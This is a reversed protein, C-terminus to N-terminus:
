VPMKLGFEPDLDEGGWAKYSEDFGNVSELMSKPMASLSSFFYKGPVQDGDRHKTAGRSNLYRTLADNPLEPHPDRRGIVVSGSELVRDVMVQLCNPWPLTDADLLVIIEGSAERLALNRVASRGTNEKLVVSRLTLPGDYSNLLEPAGGISGDDVVIWEFVERDLTQSELATALKVLVDPSDRHATLISVKPKGAM